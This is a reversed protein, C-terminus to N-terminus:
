FIPTKLLFVSKIIFGKLQAQTLKGENMLTHYPHHIHYFKEMGRLQAEFEDRTWPANETTM